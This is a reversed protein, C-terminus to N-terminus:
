KKVGIKHAAEAARFAYKFAGESIGWQSFEQKIRIVEIQEDTLPKLQQTTYLAEIRRALERRSRKGGGEDWHIITEYVKEMAVPEGQEQKELETSNSPILNEQKALAEELAKIAPNAIAGAHDGLLWLKKLAELALKMAEKSM